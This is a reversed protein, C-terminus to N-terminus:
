ALCTSSNADRTRGLRLQNETRNTKLPERDPLALARRGRTGRKKKREKDQERELRELDNDTVANLFPTFATITAEDKRVVETLPPLFDSRLDADAVLSGDFAYGVLLLSKLYVLVQERIDHAIATRGIPDM